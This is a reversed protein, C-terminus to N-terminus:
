SGSVMKKVLEFVAKRIPPCKKIPFSYVSDVGFAKWPATCPLVEEFVTETFPGWRCRWGQLTTRMELLAEQIAEDDKWGESAAKINIGM